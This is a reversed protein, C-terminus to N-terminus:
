RIEVGYEAAFACLAPDLECEPRVVILLNRSDKFAMYAALRIEYTLRLHRTSKILIFHSENVGDPLIGRPRRDGTSSPM